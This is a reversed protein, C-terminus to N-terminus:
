PTPPAATAERKRTPNTSVPGAREREPSTSAPIDPTPHPIDSTLDRVRHDPPTANAPAPSPHTTIPRPPAPPTTANTVAPGM